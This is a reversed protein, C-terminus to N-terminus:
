LDYTDIDYTRDHFHLSVPSEALGTVIREEIPVFNSLIRGTISM